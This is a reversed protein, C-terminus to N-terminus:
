ARRLAGPAESALLAGVLTDSVVEGDFLQFTASLKFDDGACGGVLPVTAGMVAYAGRIVERQDGALADSVLIAVQHPHSDLTQALSAGVEEGAERLRTSVNPAAATRAAFGPGGFASVVVSSTAARGTAIEGATTCGILPTGPAERVIASLLEPLEYSDSCFVVLLKPDDGALAASAAERGAASADPDISHGVAAWRRAASADRAPLDLAAIHESM